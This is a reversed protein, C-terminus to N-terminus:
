KGRGKRIGGMIDDLQSKQRSKRQQITKAANGAAGSGLLRGGEEAMKSPSSGGRKSIKYAM